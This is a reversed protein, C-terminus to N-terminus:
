RGNMLIADYIAIAAVLTTKGFKRAVFLLANRILRRGDPRYFGYIFALVFAQVSSLKLSVLGKQSPFRLSEVVLIVAQVASIRFEYKDM